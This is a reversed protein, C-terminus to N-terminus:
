GSINHWHNACRFCVPFNKIRKLVSRLRIYNEGNWINLFSKEKINGMILGPCTWVNGEPYIFAECYPAFCIKKFRKLNSPNEYYNFIEQETFDPEFIIYKINKSKRRKINKIEKILNNTDFKIEKRCIGKWYDTRLNFEKHWVKKTESAIVEDVFELHQFLLLEIDIKENELSKVFDSLNDQNESSITFSININPKRLNNRKKFECLLKVGNMVKQYAGDVRRIKDNVDETGDISINVADFVDAIEKSFKEILIGNTTAESTLKKNKIYKALEYWDKYLFPEGGVFMIKPKFKSVDDIVKKLESLSLEESLIDKSFDKTRGTEGWQGCMRCRLNCRYTLPIWLKYLYFSKNSFNSLFLNTKRLIRRRIESLIFEPNALFTRFARETRM